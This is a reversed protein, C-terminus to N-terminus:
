SLWLTQIRLGAIVALMTWVAINSWQALPILVVFLACLIV